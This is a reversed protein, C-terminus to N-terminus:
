KLKKRAKAIRAALEDTISLKVEFAQRPRGELRDTIESIAPIKGELAEEISADAILEAYTRGRKDGPVDEALKHKYAESILRSKSRGGPNPSVGKKWRTNKGAEAIKPNPM